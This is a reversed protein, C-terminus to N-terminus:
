FTAGERQLALWTAVNAEHDMDTVIIENREQLTQGIALSVIRIFSTANMGFAIESPDRANLFVGVSERARAITADVQQSHRYRGGRQVNREVLHENIADLVIQPVQAGAANDFFIFSPERHLAPFLPRISEIPFRSRRDVVPTPNAVGSM